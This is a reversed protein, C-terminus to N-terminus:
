LSNVTAISVVMGITLWTEVQLALGILKSIIFFAMDM